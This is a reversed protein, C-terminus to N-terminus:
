ETIILHLEQNFIALQRSYMYTLINYLVCFHPLYDPKIGTEKPQQQIDMDMGVDVAPPWHTLQSLQVWDWWITLGIIRAAKWDFQVREFGIPSKALQSRESDTVVFVSTYLVCKCFVWTSYQLCSSKNWSRSSTEAGMWSAEETRWSSFLDLQRFYLM